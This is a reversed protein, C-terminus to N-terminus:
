GRNKFHEVMETPMDTFIGAVGERVLKEAERPENVTYALVRPFGEASAREIFHETVLRRHCHLSFAGLKKGAEILEGPQHKEIPALPLEPELTRVKELCEWDFSSVLVQARDNLQEVVIRALKGSHARRRKIELNIPISDPIVDLAQALLPVRSGDPAITIRTVLDSDSQEISATRGGLRELTWDHFCVLKGDKTMQVDLEIMDVDAEVARKFSPLTNECVEGAAGRHGVIWPTRSLELTSM